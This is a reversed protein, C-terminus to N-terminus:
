QESNVTEDDDTKVGPDTSSYARLKGLYKASLIGIGTAFITALIISFFLQNVQLGMLAVLMAPPVIQVSATNIVLFTVMDNTATDKSPNLKQLEHMAKIGMPTAANGLGLMNASMNLIIMGMAPHDKPIGPFLPRFLPGVIKVLGELLGINEAIKMLGLWLAMVGILGLALEVATDAFSLAAKTIDKLKVFRVASFGVKATAMSDGQVKLNSLVGQLDKGKENTSKQITAFPEPMSAGEAFSLQMGADSNKVTGEFVLDKTQADKGSLGYFGNFTPSKILVKATNRPAQANYKEPFQLEVSLAQGNRYRNSGSDQFDKVLAFVFSFIILGAWIKNMM